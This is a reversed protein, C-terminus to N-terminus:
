DTTQGIRVLTPDGEDGAYINGNEDIAIEDVSADDLGAGDFNYEWVLCGTPAIRHLEAAGNGVYVNGSGDVQLGWKDADMEYRWDVFDDEDDMPGYDLNTRVVDGGDAASYLATGDPSTRISTVGWQGGSGAHTRTDTWERTLDPNYKQVTDNQLAAYIKGNDDSTLGNVPSGLTLIDASTPSGLDTGRDFRIIQGEDDGKQTSVYIHDGLLEIDRIDHRESDVAINGHEDFDIEHYVSGSEPDLAYLVPDEYGTGAYLVDEREDYTVPRVSNAATVTWAVTENERYVAKIKGDSDDDYSGAFVYDGHADLGRIRDDFGSYQWSDDFSVGVTTLERNTVVNEKGDNVGLVRVSGELDDNCPVDIHVRDGAQDMTTGDIRSGTGDVLYFESGRQVSVLEVELGQGPEEDFEFGALAGPNIDDSVGSFMLFIVAALALVLLLLLATAM